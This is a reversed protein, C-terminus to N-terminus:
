EHNSAPTAGFGLTHDGDEGSPWTVCNPSWKKIKPASALNIYNSKIQCMFLLNYVMAEYLKSSETGIPLWWIIIFAVCGTDRNYPKHVTEFFAELVSLQDTESTWHIYFDMQKEM